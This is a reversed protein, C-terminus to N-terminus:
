FPLSVQRGRQAKRAKSQTKATQVKGAAQEEEALLADAAAQAAAEAAARSTSASEAAAQKSSASAQSTGRQLKRFIIQQQRCVRMLM